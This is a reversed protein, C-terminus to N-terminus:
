AKKKRKKKKPLFKKGEPLDKNCGRCVYGKRVDEPTTKKRKAIKAIQAENTGKWEKCISCQVKNPNDEDSPAPGKSKRGKTPNCTQCQYSKILEEITIGKRKATAIIASQHYKQVKGCKCVLQDPIGEYSRKAQRGRVSPNCESCQFGKIYDVLLIDKNRCISATKSPAQQVIGGCSICTLEKPINPYKPQRASRAKGLREIVAQRENREAQEVSKGFNTVADQYESSLQDWIGFLKLTEDNVDKVHVPRCIATGSTGNDRMVEWCILHCPFHFSSYHLQRGLRDKFQDLHEVHNM